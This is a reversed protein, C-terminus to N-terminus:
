SFFKKSNSSNHIRTRTKIELRHNRIVTLHIYSITLCAISTLTPVIFGWFRWEAIEAFDPAVDYVDYFLM